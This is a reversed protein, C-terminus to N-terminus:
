SGQRPAAEEAQPVVQECDSAPASFSFDDSVSSQTDDDMNDVQAAAAKVQNLIAAHRLSDMRKVGEMPDPLSTLTLEGKSDLHPAGMLGSAWDQEQTTASEVLM